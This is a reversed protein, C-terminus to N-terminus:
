MPAGILKTIYEGAVFNTTLGVRSSEEKPLGFWRHTSDMYERYAEGYRQLCYREEAVISANLLALFALAVLILLWSSGAIGVGALVLFMGLYQPNRSFRYTGKTVPKDVDTRLFDFIAATRIIMGLLYTGIGTLLWSPDAALPLFISYFIAAFPLLSAITSAIRESRNPMPVNAAGKNLADKNVLRGSLAYILLDPLMACSMLIWANWWGLEFAPIISMSIGIDSQSLATPKPDINLMKEVMIHS